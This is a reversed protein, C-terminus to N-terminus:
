SKYTWAKASAISHNDYGNGDTLLLAAQKYRPVTMNGTITFTGSTPNYLEATALPHQYEGGGAVLM